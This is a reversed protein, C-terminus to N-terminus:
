RAAHAAAEARVLQDVAAPELPDLRGAGALADPRQEDRGGARQELRRAGVDEQQAVARERGRREVARDQGAHRARTTSSRARRSPIATRSAGSVSSSRRAASM